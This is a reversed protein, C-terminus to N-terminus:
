KAELARIRTEHDLVMNRMGESKAMDLRINDVSERLSKVEPSLNTMSTQVADIQGILRNGFGIASLVLTACFVVFPWNITGDFKLRATPPTEPQSMYIGVVM